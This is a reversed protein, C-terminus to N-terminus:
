CRPVGRIGAYLLINDRKVCVQIEFNIELSLILVIYALTHPEKDISWLQTILTKGASMLIVVCVCM